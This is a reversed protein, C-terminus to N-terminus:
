VMYTLDSGWSPYSYIMSKLDKAPIKARIALAFLNITEDASSGVIHAGLLTGDEDILVKYAYAKEQSRYANFWSSADGSKIKYDINQAKAMEETFGVSALPPNTFVVTPMEAYQPAKNNGKLINSAVAHGEFVAM